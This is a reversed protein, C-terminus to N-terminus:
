QKIRLMPAGQLFTSLSCIDLVAAGPAEVTIYRASAPCLYLMKSYGPLDSVAPLCLPNENGVVVVQVAM